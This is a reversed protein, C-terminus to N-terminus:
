RRHHAEAPGRRRSRAVGCHHRRPRRSLCAQLCQYASGGDAAVAAGGNRQVPNRRAVNVVVRMDRREGAFGEHTQEAVLEFLRSVDIISQDDIEYLIRHVLALANIRTRTEGLADKAVPDKLRRAQLSLLSMVVQLNNKVRHHIERILLTKQALAERLSRDRADIAEAMETMADSLVRLESPAGAFSPRRPTIAGRYAEATRRLDIIWRTLQRDTVTWIAIWTLIIMAFPVLIDTMANMNARRFIKTDPIAFGVYIGPDLLPATAYTWPTGGTDDATRVIPRGPNNRADGVFVAHAVGSDTAAIIHRDRDFVAMVSGTPLPSSHLTENLWRLDIAVDLTGDFRNKADRIPLLGVIVKSNTSRSLTIGSVVFNRQGRMASWVPIYHADHGIAQPLASCVVHGGADIRSINTIFAVNRMAAALDADCEASSTRVEPLNALALALDRASALANQAPTAAAYTTAILEAHLDAVDRRATEIGQVISFLAPVLLVIGVSLLLRLRLSWGSNQNVTTSNEGPM